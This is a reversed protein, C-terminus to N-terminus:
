EWMYALLSFVVLILNTANKNMRLCFHNRQWIISAIAKGFAHSRKYECAHQFNGLQKFSYKQKKGQRTITFNSFIPDNRSYFIMNSKFVHRKQYKYPTKINITSTADQQNSPFLAALIYSLHVRDLDIVYQNDIKEMTITTTRTM